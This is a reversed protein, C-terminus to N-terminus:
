QNWKDATVQKHRSNKDRPEVDQTLATDDRGSAVDGDVDVKKSHQDGAMAAEAAAAKKEEVAQKFAEQQQPDM